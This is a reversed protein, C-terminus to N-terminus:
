HLKFTTRYFLLPKIRLGRRYEAMTPVYNQTVIVDVRVIDPNENIAKVAWSRAFLDMSSNAEAFHGLMSYLKVHMERNALIFAYPRVRGSASTLLIRVNWDSTVSPAFFGFNRNAFTIASYYDTLATVPTLFRWGSMVDYLHTAVIIIFFFHLGILVAIIRRKTSWVFHSPPSAGTAGWGELPEFGHESSAPGPVPQRGEM